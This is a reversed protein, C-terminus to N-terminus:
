YLDKNNLATCNKLILVEYNIWVCISEELHM